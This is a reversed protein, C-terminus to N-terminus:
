EPPLKPQLQLTVSRVTQLPIGRTDVGASGWHGNAYMSSRRGTNEPPEDAAALFYTIEHDFVATGDVKWAVTSTAAADRDNPNTEMLEYGTNNSGIGNFVRGRYSDVRIQLPYLMDSSVRTALGDLPFTAAPLDDALPQTRTPLQINEFYIDAPETYPLLEFHKIEVLPVSIRELGSGTQVSYWGGRKLDLRRGDTLVVWLSYKPRQNGAFKFMIESTTLTQEAEGYFGTNSSWGRHHGEAFYSITFTVGDATQYDGLKPPIVTRVTGPAFNHVKMVLDLSDPLPHWLSYAHFRSTGTRILGAGSQFEQLPIKTKSELLEVHSIAFRNETPGALDIVAHDMYACNKLEPLERTPFNLVKGRGDETRFVGGAEPRSVSGLVWTNSESVLESGSTGTADKLRSSQKATRTYGSPRSYPKWVTVPPLEGIRSTCEFFGMSGYEMSYGRPYAGSIRFVTDYAPLHIEGRADTTLGVYRLDLSQDISGKTVRNCELTQEHIQLNQAPTGNGFQYPRVVVRPASELAAELLRRGDQEDGNRVLWTGLLYQAYFLKPHEELIQELAIRTSTDDFRRKNNRTSSFLRSIDVCERVAAEEEAPIRFPLNRFGGFFSRLDTESIASREPQMGPLIVIAAILLAIVATTRLRASRFLGSDMLRRIRGAAPHESDTFGLAAPEAIGRTQCAAARILTECYADPEALQRTVLEDDCCEERARRVTRKLWWMAPHFWWVIGLIIECWGVLLDRRRIHVLEHALVIRVHHSDLQQLVTSPIVIVPRFVGTAFPADVVDTTLGAPIRKMGLLGALRRIESNIREDCPIASSVIRRLSMLQLGARIMALLVGTLYIMILWTVPAPSEAPQPPEGAAVISLEPAAVPSEVPAAASSTELTSDSRRPPRNVPATDSVTATIGTRLTDPLHSVQPQSFLGVSSSSFPPIAFKVLVLILLAYRVHSSLRRRGLWVTLGVFIALAAAQWGAHFLWQAAASSFANLDTM